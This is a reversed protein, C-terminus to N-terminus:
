LLGANSLLRAIDKPYASDDRLRSLVTREHVQALLMEPKVHLEALRAALAAETPELGADLWKTVDGSEIMANAWQRAFVAASEASVGPWRAQIEGATGVLAIPEPHKPGPYRRPERHKPVPLGLNRFITADEHAHHDVPGQLFVPVADQRSKKRWDDLVQQRRVEVKYAHRLKDAEAPRLVSSQTRAWVHHRKALDLLVDASTGLEDALQSIACSGYVKSPPSCRQRGMARM